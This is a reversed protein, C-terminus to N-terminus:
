FSFDPCRQLGFARLPCLAEQFPERPSLSAKLLPQIVGNATWQDILSFREIGRNRKFVQSSNSLTGYDFPRLLASLM